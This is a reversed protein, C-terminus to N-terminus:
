KTRKERLFDGVIKGLRRIGDQINQQNVLSFALRFCESDRKGVHFFNGPAIEIGRVLSYEYLARSSHGKPLKLWYSLGGEPKLWKVVDAMTKELEAAMAARRGDYIRRVKRLHMEFYGKKIFEHLLTQLFFSDGQDSARKLKVLALAADAPATIWGIRLGPLFVKSFSGIQFVFGGRDLAKLSPLHRGDHGLFMLYADEIVPVEYKAALRILAKRKELSMITGTPNQLTPVSIVLGISGSKLKQELIELNMGDSEVPIGVHKIRRAILSNLISTYTPDEVAVAKGDRILFTLLLTLALQFGGALIVDNRGERMDVQEAALIHSLWEVLPQYGQPHGYNFFSEKPDWLMRSAIKKIREFPFQGPDPLAKAFSIFQDSGKYLNRNRRPMAFFEGNFGYSSWDMTGLDEPQERDDFEPESNEATASLAAPKKGKLQSVFTGSGINSEFYQLAALEQYATIVTKRTVGLQRALERSSPLKEGGALIGSDIMEAIAKIIQRYVPERSSKDLNIFMIRV